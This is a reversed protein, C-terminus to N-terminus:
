VSYVGRELATGNRYYTKDSTWGGPDFGPETGETRQFPLLEQIREREIDSISHWSDNHELFSLWSAGSIDAGPPIRGSRDDELLMGYSSITYRIVIIWKNDRNFGYEVMKLCKNVLLVVLEEKFAEIEEDSPKGYFLQMQKLDAAVKSALYGADTKTVTDSYTYSITM